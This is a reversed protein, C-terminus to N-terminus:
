GRRVKAFRGMLFLVVQNKAAQMPSGSCAGQNIAAQAWQSPAVTTKKGEDSAAGPWRQSCM